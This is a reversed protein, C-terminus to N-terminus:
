GSVPNQAVQQAVCSCAVQLKKRKKRNKRNRKKASSPGVGLPQEMAPPVFATPTFAVPSPEWKPKKCQHLPKQMALINSLKAFAESIVNSTVNNVGQTIGVEKGNGFPIGTNGMLLANGNGTSEVEKENRFPFVFDTGTSPALPTSSDQFPKQMAPINTLQSAYAESIVTSTGNNTGQTIGVEKGNGFPVGTKVVLPANGNGISEVEKENRFPFVFDIGTNPALPTNSDQFPKQLAPINRLQSGCAESILTSSISTGNNPGWTIGVEKGNGFPIGTNVVLPANGNGTSEVEKENRFPFVFNGTNLALPISDQSSQSAKLKDLAAYLRFKSKIIELIATGSESNGFISLIVARAALQEAEKKSRGVEGTYNVGNFVLSSIFVPLLGKPQITSRTTYTPKELNMKTAYENLISKCFVTDQIIPFPFLSERIIPYGEEKIKQTLSALAVSAVDQEAAKRNSFTNPSTIYTGDVFVTSRFMPPRQAGENITQYIPIPLGSRQAYEQLRNKWLFHEPVNTSSQPPQETPALESVCAAISLSQRSTQEAM